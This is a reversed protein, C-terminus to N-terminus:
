NTGGMVCWHKYKSLDIKVGKKQFLQVDYKKSLAEIGPRNKSIADIYAGAIIISKTQFSSKQMIKYNFVMFDLKEKLEEPLFKLKTATRFYLTYALNFFVTSIDDNDVTYWYVFFRPDMIKTRKFIMKELNESIQFRPKAGKLELSRVINRFLRGIKIISKIWLGNFYLEPSKEGFDLFIEFNNLVIQSIEAVEQIDDIMKIFYTALKIAELKERIDVNDKGFNLFYELYKVQLKEERIRDFCFIKQHHARRYGESDKDLRRCVISIQLLEEPSSVQSRIKINKLGRQIRKIM